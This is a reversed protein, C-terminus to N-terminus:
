CFSSPIVQILEKREFSACLAMPIVLVRLTSNIQVAISLAVVAEKNLAEPIQLVVGVLTDAEVGVTIGVQTILQEEAELVVMRPAMEGWPGQNSPNEQRTVAEQATVSFDVVVVVTAEKVAMDM